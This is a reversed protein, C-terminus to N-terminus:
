KWINEHSTIKMLCIDDGSKISKLLDVTVECGFAKEFLAKSYGTTCQCWAKSNLKTVTELMPCPCFHFELYLENDKASLGAQKAEPYSVFEELNTSQEMLKKVLAVKAEMGYGCQCHMRIEKVADAHHTKELRAMTNNVWEANSEAAYEHNAGYVIATATEENEKEAIVNYLKEEQIKRIDFM